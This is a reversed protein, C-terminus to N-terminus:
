PRMTINEWTYQPPLYQHEVEYQFFGEGVDDQWLTCRCGFVAVRRQAHKETMKKLFGEIIKENEASFDASFRSSLKKM